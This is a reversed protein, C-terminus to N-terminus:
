SHNTGKPVFYPGCAPTMIHPIGLDDCMKNIIAECRGRVPGALAGKVADEVVKENLDATPFNLDGSIERAEAVIADTVAHIVYDRFTVCRNDRWIDIHNKSRVGDLFQGLSLRFMLAFQDKGAANMRIGRDFLTQSVTTFAEDTTTM